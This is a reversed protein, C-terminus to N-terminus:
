PELPNSNMVMMATTMAASLCALHHLLLQSSVDKDAPLHHSSLLFPVPKPFRLAWGWQCMVELSVM